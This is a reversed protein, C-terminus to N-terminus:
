SKGNEKRRIKKTARKPFSECREGSINTEAAEAAECKRKWQKRQKASRSGGSGGSRVEAEVAEAAECKQKWQKQRKASGSSGGSLAAERGINATRGNAKSCLIKGIDFLIYLFGRHDCLCLPHVFVRILGRCTAHTVAM